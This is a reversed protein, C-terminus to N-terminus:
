SRVHYILPANELVVNNISLFADVVEPDFQTGAFRRLEMFAEERSMPRSRYPRKSVMADFSDAVAIIRSGIPIDKGSKEPDPYGGGGFREHHHKVIDIVSNLIGAERLINVSTQPHKVVEQWENKTLMGPKNLIAKDIELKGIDHFFAALKIELIERKKLGMAKAIRASQKVVNRSHEGIFKDKSNLLRTFKRITRTFFKRKLM